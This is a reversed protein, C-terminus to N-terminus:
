TICAAYVVLSQVNYQGGIKLSAFRNPLLGFCIPSPRPDPMVDIPAPTSAPATPSTAAGTMPARSFPTVPKMPPRADPITPATRRIQALFQQGMSYEQELSVTGSIRDGLSPLNQAQALYDFASVSIVLVITKLRLNFM